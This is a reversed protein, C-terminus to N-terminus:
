HPITDDAGADILSDLPDAEPGDYHITDFGPGGDITDHLGDDAFIIDNGGGGHILDEGGGGVITEAHDSGGIADNSDSGTLTDSGEFHVNLISSATDGDADTVALHFSTDIDGDIEQNIVALGSVRYDVTGHSFDIRGIETAGHLDLSTLEGDILTATYPVANISNGDIDYLTYAIVGNGAGPTVSKIDISVSVSLVSDTFDFHVTETDIWQGSGAIGQQSSNVTGADSTITLFVDANAPLDAPKFVSQGNIPPDIVYLAPPNGGINDDFAAGLDTVTADLKGEMDIQYEGTASDLHLTFVLSQGTSDSYAAPVSNTDTYAYLTDPASPNVHYYVTNTGSTLDSASFTIGTDPNWGTINGSLDASAPTDAGSLIDAYGSVFGTSENAIIAPMVNSIEPIDDGIDIVLNQPTNDTTGDNIKVEFSDNGWDDRLDPDSDNDVTSTLVYEWSGDGHVTLEGNTGSIPNGSNLITSYNGDLVGIDVGNIKLNLTDGDVDDYTIQGSDTVNNPSTGTGEPLGSEYVTGSDVTMTPADNDAELNITVTAENSWLAGDSVQYDFQTSPGEWNADPEFTLKGATIDAVSIVQEDSVEVGDLYLTGDAPLSKIRIDTFSASDNDYDNSPGVGDNGFLDDASITLTTDETANLTDDVAVPADNDAELNITVTAENSWLAGDSVQYDFQTSPGEWNADPEFTLKGATIDAVSIVQEDSVEVGDLYLTGDAPLSKIRIDTFSASDNDYDNSPGVGDNGFLDDASITLTTDETANLTDDVAVPADNDAELNITVTAENSWLAGDSVQYDFQTSPGEWNADPEFTLKGATIDAVSIVQEDSVEVGDLYLTGDAPLSKIRIDTFSASDNDYDNSPGVGDNGFLDDASITLTTDETANLTDDVAVPADNDAELNITVTAENSWLAGDSVQYDFQTSPGEWNADPEFTLKGATIDAVSIVQEDSVEVGDLYLTGDAPLSKIRIDTFSASDNDYDNSPGVGDNGFLDDASITLTTDETANLTDDVAVPADNDAELNITVTAENSWLAGDSVQYDFQTSPGEWNADPEFTLKGATIDAVSIVQEDSVEVGDLYLTGDAPLSKIRIDTFSASDNDYDNSPGVGDNGFLDDASITLTTDETANLTDDVAVPADNDAELNITVTAENSWLAGDSVQYDFQTSPGEWNADPEFTLKGATIDAVSIVQEDSVEVGDLYLTGDAPLSKIRIDTFSASDNDYDNSPGVGDNGFLDDASITLTTDETANLTDDVAVPADNDAELNITVTAENSWLAGDSVQYDFQTSPGEWNADPEFTLKGATIDAVSIVQEDSVEVGDLYLTGDAPLSKIRIDTFSASDNDYDNSPGVGDNGFLDDASITLTTDETANLTDDVAVPADNDAELNITVTAENSWLAGDSVQYDFQTSPGEWNADPEFTLKGATIDAVSIVQEDSVEVGDLYLTGDAPLSKIRIDTFSASDNDYDNSPGVGDNGFLDDASITLTTDETANLTDDVAVPADNDAELNITVTAENSWLAGDSVQYDFQTSPGEWNADPEFTLKGATIDAVSIVQEDSVEVGDLYLTGDAPLSKIRIDTFSASDNDYDNSPGVGDNGFLDDASITLTTDETANLTDDVAVPADNDAELNITVTAENSWLAGDSVQYDFQTSPGEWNADPEFTLKGATIDAVSIVQEDSVEVGDLYLTGDAPLSKIRIDTFSASDNDYDNSPGVGDNGFLDDASITLTTDETANLTDDVAVPADNDAELNITVTAENSWLAGDSVQYDFQTSPGEWNADPEFTLKGATIDAVSIVQEDSVEVGDLYLTGDAPLSKIRIDTFSASDNDYDNSPGVGDNGFLDDASITLTTDETANLTDDVAVPADNDFSVSLSLTSIDTDEGDFVTYTTVPVPGNYGSEPTFTFAGNSDITLTGVGTITATEGATYITGDGAVIFQTVIAAAPGDPNTTNDLVNGSVPTNEPTSVSENGDTLINQPPPPPIDNDLIVGTGSDAIITGGSNSISANVFFSENPEDVSDDVTDTRVQISSDGAPIDIPGTVPQWGSGDNYEFKVAHYDAPDDATGETLGLNLRAGDPANSINVTFIGDDGEPIFDDSVTLTVPEPVPPLTGDTIIGEGSDSVPEGGANSLEANLFFNEDGELLADVITDTRVLIEQNGGTLIIPGSVDQWTEGNDISYEFTTANYDAPAHATGDTLNLNLESGVAANTVTVTFIETDGEVRVDDSVLVAPLDGDVILGEGSDTVPNGGENTLSANLFFNEDPENVNDAVTDTRVLIEQNGGSLSIPGSVDQWTDGNDISYEFTTANYDAPAHATGDTLNLTLEAGDAANTVTVTFIETDGEVRVDDSVEVAPMDGDVIIAEASGSAAAGNENVVEATLSFTEDPEDVNDAVTDTRVLLTNTGESLTIPGTIDHWGSGDNYQFTALNFDAPSTATGGILGLTLQAGESADHITVTFVADDGEPVLGGEANIAVTVAPDPLEFVAPITDVTDGTIGTTEAGSTVGGEHTVRAFDPVPHGGGAAPSSGAAPPELEVTPDYGEALLAEQIQEIEAAAAAVDEATVGAFVDDDIIVHSMRGLDVQSQAPDDMVISVSGDSETVITDYAFIPSNPALTRETGDIAIAKVNGYLIVVNGVPASSDTVQGLKADAGSVKVQNWPNTDPTNEAAAM